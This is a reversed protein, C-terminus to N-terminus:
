SSQQEKEAKLEAEYAAAQAEFKQIQEIYAIYANANKSVKSYGTARKLSSIANDYQGLRFYSQGMQVLAYGTDNSGLNGKNIAKKYTQIAKTFEDRDFYINAISYDYEGSNTFTSAKKYAEIANDRDKAFYYNDAVKKWNDETSEVAGIDIGEKLREAALQPIKNNSFLASLQKYKEESKWMGNMRALEALALMDAQKSQMSYVALLNNYASKNRPFLEVMEEAIVEAGPNDKLKIHAGFLMGLMSKKSSYGLKLGMYAPCIVGRYDGTQYKYSALTAYSSAPPKIVDEFYKNMWSIAQKFNEEIGYLRAIGQRLRIVDKKRLFGSDIAKQFANRAASYNELAQYNIGLLSQARGVAVKDSSEAIMENLMTISQRHNGDAYAENAATIKKFASQSTISGVSDEEEYDGETPALPQCSATYKTQPLASVSSAFVM